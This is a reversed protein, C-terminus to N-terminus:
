FVAAEVAVSAGAALGRSTEPAEVALLLGGPRAEVSVVRGVERIIGTFM